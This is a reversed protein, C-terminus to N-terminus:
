APLVSVAEGPDRAAARPPFAFHSGRARAERWAPAESSGEVARPGAEEDSGDSESEHARKRALAASAADAAAASTRLRAAAYRQVNFAPFAHARLPASSHARDFCSKVGKRNRM